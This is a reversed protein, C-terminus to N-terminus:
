SSFPRICPLSDGNARKKALQEPTLNAVGRSGPGARRKKTRQDQLIGSVSDSGGPQSTTSDPSQVDGDLSSSPGRKYHNRGLGLGLGLSLSPANPPPPHGSGARAGAAPAITSAAFSAPHGLLSSSNIGTSAAPSLPANARSHAHAHAHNHAPGDTTSSTSSSASPLM